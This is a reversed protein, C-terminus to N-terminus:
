AAMIKQAEILDLVEIMETLGLAEMEQVVTDLVETTEQVATDQAETM